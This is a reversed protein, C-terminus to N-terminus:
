ARALGPYIAEATQADVLRRLWAAAEEATEFARDKQEVDGLKVLWVRNDRRTAIHHGRYTDSWFELQVEATVDM